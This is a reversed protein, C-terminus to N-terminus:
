SWRFKFNIEEENWKRLQMNMMALMTATKLIAEHLSEKSMNIVM